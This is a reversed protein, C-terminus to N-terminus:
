AFQERAEDFRGASASQEAAFLLADLDRHDNELCRTASGDRGAVHPAQEQM